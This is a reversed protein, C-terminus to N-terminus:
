PHSMRLVAPLELDLLAAAHQRGRGLCYVLVKGAAGHAADPRCRRRHYNVAKAILCQVNQLHLRILEGLYLAYTCGLCLVYACSEFLLGAHSSKGLKQAGVTDLRYESQAHEFEVTVGRYLDNM